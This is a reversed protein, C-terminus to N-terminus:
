ITNSFNHLHPARDIIGSCAQPFLCFFGRANVIGTIHAFIVQTSGKSTSEEVGIKHPKRSKTKLQPGTACSPARKWPMSSTTPEIGVLDVLEGLLESRPLTPVVANSDNNTDYGATSTSIAPTEMATRKAEM